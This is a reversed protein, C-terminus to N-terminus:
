FGLDEEVLIFKIKRGLLALEGKFIVIKNLNTCVNYLKMMHENELPVVHENLRKMADDITAVIKKTSVVFILNSSTFVIHPLQSGSNSAILFEGNEILAHISVLYYDALVTERRLKDRKEKDNEANVEANLDIWRHKGSKLYEVYGIQELTVSSGNMVSAGNPILTKIKELAQNKNEVILVEYGKKTLAATTKNVVDSSALTDYNM